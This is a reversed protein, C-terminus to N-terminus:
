KEKKSFRGAPGGATFLISLRTVIAGLLFYGCFVELMLLVQGCPSQPDAAIDGFGLTTMTVISFYLAHLFSALGGVQGNVMVCDPMQWYAFAFVIALAFFVTLVRITSRGYDSVCWFLRVPFTLLQHMKRLWKKRSEGMYWDEWNLRRKNYELLYKTGEDIRCSDLGVGRFDTERDTGCEWVLTSGDVISMRFNAGRLGAKYLNAGELHAHALDAGELQARWLDTGKLHAHTLEAAQLHAQKLNARELHAYILNAGELHADQLFAGELHAYFLRAGKLHAFILRAGELHAHNLNAGGLRIGRLKAGQLWIEEKPNKERWKNWETTNGKESCKKLLDLQQLDCRLEAERSDNGQKEESENM